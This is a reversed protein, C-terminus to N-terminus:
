RITIYLLQLVWLSRFITQGGSGALSVSLNNTILNLGFPEGAPVTHGDM